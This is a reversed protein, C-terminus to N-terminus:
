RTPRSRRAPRRSGATTPGTRSSGNAPKVLPALVQGGYLDDARDVIVFAQEYPLDVAREIPVPGQEDVVNWSRIGRRLYVPGVLEAFQPLDMLNGDDDLEATRVAKNFAASAEAGGAFDLFPRLVAIDGDDHGDVGDHPTGPCSCDRFRVPIDM